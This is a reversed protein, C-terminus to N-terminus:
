AGPPRSRTGGGGDPRPRAGTQPQRRSASIQETAYSGAAASTRRTPRRREAPAAGPVESECYPCIKWLPDLPKSCSRCPQRLKQRCNPCRLFSPEVAAGCNRCTRSKLVQVRAEAAKIELERERADELYEPPRVITYVITGLFPFLSAATACGVLMPDAIRRRADSYTWYVLALWIVVVFLILLSVIRNLADNNIGFVALQGM